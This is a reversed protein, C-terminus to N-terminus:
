YKSQLFINKKNETLRWLQEHLPLKNQIEEQQKSDFPVLKKIIEVVDRACGWSLTIGSGSHGYCHVVNMGDTTKEHELRVGDDRYPRLGVQVNGYHIRKLAPLCKSCMRLIKKTDNKLTSSNWNDIQFTGGLVVSNSQPIIYAEGEDTDFNYVSKIWPAHIRIIQGRAPRVTQDNALQRAGIGTCNIIIDTKHMLENFSHIKKKIFKVRFDQALFRRLERLYYRVEITITPMVYGSTPKLHDFKGIEYKDLMRFHRVLTSFQPGFINKHNNKDDFGQLTYASMKMIGAQAAKISFFESLFIDYTYSAWRLIREDISEFGYPECYGALIDGTTEPSFKESIIILQFNDNLSYEKLLTCATTLGIIGAGIITIHYKNSFSM